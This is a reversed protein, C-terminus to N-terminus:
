YGYVPVPGVPAHASCWYFYANSGFGKEVHSPLLLLFFYISLGMHEMPRGNKRSLRVSQHENPLKAGGAADILTFIRQLRPSIDAM